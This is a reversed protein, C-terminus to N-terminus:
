EPWEENMAFDFIESNIVFSPAAEWGETLTQREKIELTASFQWHLRGVLSPGSYMDAFRCEYPQLGMPTRLDAFFWEAGDKLDWRFWAEFLQAQGQTFLWSVQAMTPVSTYKRRQRARGSELQTRMLPSVHQLSYGSRLPPPLSAPYDIM